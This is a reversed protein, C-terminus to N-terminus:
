MIRLRFNQRFLPIMPGYFDNGALGSCSLNSYGFCFVLPLVLVSCFFSFFFFCLCFFFFFFFFFFPHNFFFFFFFLFIKFTRKQFFFFVPSPFHSKKSIHPMLTKPLLLRQSYVM